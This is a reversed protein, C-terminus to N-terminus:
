GEPPPIQQVYKYIIYTTCKSLSTYLANSMEHHTPLTFKMHEPNM